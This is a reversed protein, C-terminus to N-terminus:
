ASPRALFGTLVGQVIAPTDMVLGPLRTAIDLVGVSKPKDKSNDDNDAMVM